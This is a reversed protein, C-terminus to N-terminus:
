CAIGGNWGTTAPQMMPHPPWATAEARALAETLEPVRTVMTSGLTIDVYCQGIRSGNKRGMAVVRYAGHAYGTRVYIHNGQSDTRVIEGGRHTHAYGSDLLRERMERIANNIGDMASM